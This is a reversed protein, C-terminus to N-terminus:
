RQRVMSSSSLRTLRTQSQAVGSVAAWWAGRDRPNELYSCQLPNGNGSGRVIMIGRINGSWAGWPVSWEQRHRTRLWDRDPPKPELSELRFVLEETAWMERQGTQLFCWCYSQLHYMGRASRTNGDGSSDSALGWTCGKGSWSSSSMFIFIEARLLSIWFSTLLAQCWSPSLLQGNENRVKSNPTGPFHLFFHYFKPTQCPLCSTLSSPREKCDELYCTQGHCM